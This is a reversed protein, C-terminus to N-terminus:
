EMWQEDTRDLARDITHRCAHHQETWQPQLLKNTKDVGDSQCRSAALEPLM